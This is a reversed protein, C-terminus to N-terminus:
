IDYKLKFTLDREETKKVPTALSAVGILNRDEDYIGIKSIYTHKEFSATPDAYSSSVTNKIDIKKKETYQFSSTTATKQGPSAQTYKQYTPNNSHNLKGKPAHAMMTVTPVYNVGEFSLDFSSSCLSADARPNIGDNAGVGFYQWSSTQLNTLDNIYDRATIELPWSGTLVIFGENYLVVGAISGSGQAQAYSSGTVQVLEGNQREDKLEGVLTGTIYFKLSVSGKRISSGYFISPVSILGLGQSAKDGLSSSFAYHDSHPTYHNLTNKLATIHSRSTVTNRYYKRSISASMPYSSTITDGYAFTNNYTTTSITSFANGAGQKTIFPYIYPNTNNDRDVNLEYLSIHGSPVNKARSGFSGSNSVQNNYYIIADYIFFNCRPYTKVRNYFIDNQGFEHIYM